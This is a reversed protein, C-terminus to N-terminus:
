FTGVLAAGTGTPILAVRVGGAEDLTHLDVAAVVYSGVLTAGGVVLFPVARSGDQQAVMATTATLVAASDLGIVLWPLTPPPPGTLGHRAHLEAGAAVYPAVVATLSGGVVMTAGVAVLAGSGPQPTDFSMLAGVLAVPVGVVAAGLGAGGVWFATRATRAGETYAAGPAVAGPTAAALPLPEAALAAALPLLVM